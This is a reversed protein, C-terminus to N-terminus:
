TVPLRHERSRAGVLSELPERVQGDMGTAESTAGRLPKTVVTAVVQREAREVVKRRVTSLGEVWARYADVRARIRQLVAALRRVLAAIRSGTVAAKAAAAVAGAVTSAGLTVLGTVASVALTLAAWELLERVLERVLRETEHVATAAEELCAGIDASREGLAELGVGVETGAQAWSRQALGVWAGETDGVARHQRHAIDDLHEGVGRWREAAERVADHDGVLADWQELLPRVVPRIVAQVEAPLSGLLTVSELRTPTLAIGSM